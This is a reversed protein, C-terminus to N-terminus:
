AIKTKKETEEVVTLKMGSKRLSELMAILVSNFLDPHDKLLKTIAPNTSKRRRKGKQADEKAQKHAMATEVDRIALLFVEPHATDELCANLYAVAEKPNELSEFLFDEYSDTIETHKGTKM